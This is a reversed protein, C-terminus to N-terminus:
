FLEEAPVEWKMEVWSEAGSNALSTPKHEQNLDWNGRGLSGWDFLALGGSLDAGLFLPLGLLLWLQGWGM